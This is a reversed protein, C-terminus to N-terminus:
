SPGFCSSPDSCNSSKLQKLCILPVLNDVWKHNKSPKQRYRLGYNQTAMSTPVAGYGRPTTFRILPNENSLFIPPTM